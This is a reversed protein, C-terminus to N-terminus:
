ESTDAENSIVDQFFCMKNNMPKRTNKKAVLIVKRKNLSFFFYGM